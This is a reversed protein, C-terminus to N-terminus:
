LVRAFGVILCYFCFLDLNCELEQWLISFQTLSISNQKVKEFIWDILPMCSWFHFVKSLNYVTVSMLSPLKWLRTFNNNSFRKRFVFIMYRFNCCSLWVLLGLMLKSIDFTFLLLVWNSIGFVVDISTCMLSYPHPIQLSKCMLLDLYQLMGVSRHPM